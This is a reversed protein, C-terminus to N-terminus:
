QKKIFSPLNLNRQDIVRKLETDLVRKRADNAQERQIHIWHGLTPGVTNPQVHEEPETETYTSRRRCVKHRLRFVKRIVKKISGPYLIACIAFVICAMLFWAAMFGALVHIDMPIMGSTSHDPYEPGVAKYQQERPNPKQITIFSYRFKGDQDKRVDSGYIKTLAVNYSHKFGEVDGAELAKQINTVYEYNLAPQDTHQDSFKQMTDIWQNKKLKNDKIESKLKISLNRILKQQVRDLGNNVIESKWEGYYTQGEKGKTSGGCGM